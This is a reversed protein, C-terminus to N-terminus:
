VVHAEGIVSGSAFRDLSLVRIDVSRASGDVVAEAVLKGVIPGHQFGHGSFGAAIWLGPVPSPGVIPHRDPTMEYLGAWASRVGAVAVPPFVEIARPILEASVVRDDVATDFSARDDGGMGMVV